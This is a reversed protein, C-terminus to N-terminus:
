SLSDEHAASKGNRMALGRSKVENKWWETLERTETDYPDARLMAEQQENRGIAMRRMFEPDDSNVLSFTGYTGKGKQPRFDGVGQITGASALLNAIGSENLNPQVFAITIRAAWQPIILRSRLDPTRAMDSNRVVMLSMKPLGYIHVREGVVWTLRAIQSKNAGPLDLAASALAQKFASALHQILCPSNPDEDQYASARFEEFPSHKATTARAALNKKASPQLLERQAKQSLRNLIIPTEGLICADFRGTTIKLIEISESKQIAM